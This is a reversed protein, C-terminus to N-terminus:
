SASFQILSKNTGERATKNSGGNQKHAATNITEEIKEQAYQMLKSADAMGYMDPMGSMNKEIINMLQEKTETLVTVEKETISALKEDFKKFFKIQLEFVDKPERVSSLAQMQALGINFLDTMYETQLSILKEAASKNIDTIMTVPVLTEKIDKMTDQSMEKEETLKKL